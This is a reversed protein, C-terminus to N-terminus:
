AEENVEAPAEIVPSDGTEQEVADQCAWGPRNIALPAIDIMTAICSGLYSDTLLTERKRVPLEVARLQVKYKTDVRINKGAENKDYVSVSLVEYRNGQSSFNGRCDGRGQVSLFQGPVASSQNPSVPSPSLLVGTAASAKSEACGTATVIADVLEKRTFYPTGPPTARSAMFAWGANYLTGERSYLAAFREKMSLAM